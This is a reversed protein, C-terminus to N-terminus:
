HLVEAEKRVNEEFRGSLARRHERSRVSAALRGNEFRHCEEARLSREAACWAVRHDPSTAFAAIDASLQGVFAALHGDLGLQGPTRPLRTGLDIALSGPSRVQGGGHRHRDEGGVVERDNLSPGGSAPAQEVVRQGVQVAAGGRRDLVRVPREAM